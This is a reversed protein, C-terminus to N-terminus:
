RFNMEQNRQMEKSGHSEEDEKEHEKKTHFDQM